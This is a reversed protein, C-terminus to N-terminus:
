LSVVPAPLKSLNHSDEGHRDSEDYKGHHIGHLAAHGGGHTSERARRSRECDSEILPPVNSPHSSYGLFPALQIVATPISLPPTASM